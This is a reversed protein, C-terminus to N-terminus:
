LDTKHRERKFVCYKTRNELFLLMHNNCWIKKCIIGGIRDNIHPATVKVIVFWVMHSKLCYAVIIWYIFETSLSAQDFAKSPFIYPQFPLQHPESEPLQMMLYKVTIYLTTWTFRVTKFFIMARNTKYLFLPLM